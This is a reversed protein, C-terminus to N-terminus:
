KGRKYIKELEIATNKIDFGNDATTNCSMGCYYINDRLWSMINIAKPLDDGSGAIDFINYKKNLKKHINRFVYLKKDDAIRSHNVEDGIEKLDDTEPYKAVIDYYEYKDEPIKINIKKM